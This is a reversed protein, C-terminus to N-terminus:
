RRGPEPKVTRTCASQMGASALSYAPMKLILLGACFLSTIFIVAYAWYPLGPEFGWVAFTIFLSAAFVFPQIPIAVNSGAARSQRYQLTFGWLLTALAYVTSSIAIIDKM